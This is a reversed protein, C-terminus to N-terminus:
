GDLWQWSYGGLANRLTGYAINLDTAISKITEGQAHRSRAAEVIAQTLKAM